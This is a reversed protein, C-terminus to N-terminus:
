ASSAATLSNMGDGSSPEGARRRMLGLLGIAGASIFLLSFVKMSALADTRFPIIVLRSLGYVILFRYFVEGDDRRRLFARTLYVTAAIGLATSYLQVPHVPLSQKATAEILHAELQEKFAITGQGYRVAWPGDWPVGYCCGAIFCGVRGISDALAAAPAAADLFGLRSVGRWGACLWMAAFGVFLAGYVSAGDREVLATFSDYSAASELMDLLRAGQVALPGSVAAILLTTQPRISQRRNLASGLVTAALFAAIRLHSYPTWYIQFASLTASAMLRPGARRRRPVGAVRLRITPEPATLIFALAGSNM